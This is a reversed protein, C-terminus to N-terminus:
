KPQLFIGIGNHVRAATNPYRDLLQGSLYLSTSSGGDLNLANVCGLLKMLQAHEALTPGPGGARNHVAAILLTNNPTTCIGSRVAREAIFANSFQESKADLVVQSNQLLLPGAGIIHPYRNFEAPTTASTIQVDTGIPLQSVLTTTNGRLTLLYGNNPIPFNTQGAKNGPFQNTIKNNQVIVIRENDTLPTYMKGWAPTYRAIGNQVYGSNLALIPVRLNSSTVLTEQLSLRGFYFQGADNWAIAGRNLIPSSLWQNNQRIAGLPYRNNRNFYGGNIAGVALYRQATQLIPATGVLTDPNTIIPKLSLGVTRPNVELLVVPFRNTGLNIFQQRWRLGTAWTIDRPQLPDPRLDIILRDPNNITSVQPSLALPVSLQIVTQNNVVEVKTILPEPTPLQKLLNPASAPPPAIPQPTYRQILGTDAIGDLVITWERHTSAPPKADPTNPDVPPKIPQGQRVQWPTPRTLDVVIRTTPLSPVIPTGPRQSSRIDRVQGPSTAIALTNGQSQIQWGATRALNTIDLYRYGGQLRTTLVIPQTTSSFWVVPQRAPDNSNLLDVGMLQRLAGDSILTTIQNAAGPQQLWAGPLNRGNLIIQSGASLRLSAPSTPLVQSPQQANTTYTASLCLLIATIPSVLTRFYGYKLPKTVINHNTRRCYNTMKDM